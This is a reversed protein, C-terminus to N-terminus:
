VFDQVPGANQQRLKKRVDAGDLKAPSTGGQVALVAAVAAAEGLAMATVTVRTSSQALRTTSHCRGAVLLNDVNKPVLSRYPIDYPAPQQKPVANAGGTTIKNPHVDLYWCGTAIADDFSKTAMIEDEALIHQGVIRRTERVGIFPGSTIFYSDEFGPVDKKWAAFMAWADSRGQMEARTLEVPDSADGPVRVGHVYIEDDAFMFMVGPGYYMPLEGREHAKELAIRCNKSLDPAKKVNGIRFHLTLPQLEAGKDTPAGAWAAVDADGTCDIVQRARIRTLGAKNAVLVAAIRQADMEVGCVSSHYLVRLKEKEAILLKDALVKFAEVNRITPNHTKLHTANAECVGSKSLLELGVGRVVVRGDKIDAIGDFYPLGVATIIGGSFGAREVLMTRAGNRAASLAAALGACGGGCVLVDTDISPWDPRAEAAAAQRPIVAAGAVLGATQLFTRRSPTPM